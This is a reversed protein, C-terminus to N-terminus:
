GYNPKTINQIYISCFFRSKNLFYDKEVTYNVSEIRGLPDNSELDNIIKTLNTFRGEIKIIFIDVHYGEISAKNIPKLTVIKVDGSSCLISLRNFLKEQFNKNTSDKKSILDEVKSLKLELDRITNTGINSQDLQAKTMSYETIVAITKSIAVRYVILVFVAICVYLLILKNKYKLRKM